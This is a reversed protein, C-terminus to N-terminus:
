CGSCYQLIPNIAFIMHKTLDLSFNSNLFRLLSTNGFMMFTSNSYPLRWPQPDSSLFKINGAEWTSMASSIMMM